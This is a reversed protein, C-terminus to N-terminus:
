RTLSVDKKIKKRLIFFDNIGLMYGLGYSIHLLFFALMMKLNYYVNKYYKLSFAFALLFYLMVVTLFLVMSYISVFSLTGFVIIFLVFAFPVLQRLNTIAKHKKNVYVKWYGYQFYQKFLKNFSSRVFYRAKLDKSLWIKGGNKLLRFNFEDDQNRSLEEDFLGIKNFVNKRYMGFAVTDVFGDKIGTRFHASGVGFVSSLAYSIVETTKNESINELIGGLCDIEPNKNLINVAKEIYDLRLEAHAGLIMIYDCDLSLKIGINLAFPTTKHTNTSYHINSYKKSYHQIIEPSKDTSLGDVVFIKLFQQPYSQNIISLLCKEIYKEENRCPIVISVMKLNM